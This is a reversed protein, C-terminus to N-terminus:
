KFYNKNIRAIWAENLDNWRRWSYKSATWKFAGSVLSEENTEKIFREYYERKDVMRKFESFVKHLKLFSKFKEAKESKTQNNTQNNSM